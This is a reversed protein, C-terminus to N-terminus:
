VDGDVMVGCGYVFMWWQGHCVDKNLYEGGVMLSWMRIYVNGRWVDYTGHVCM